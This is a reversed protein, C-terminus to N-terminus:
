IMKLFNNVDNLNLNSSSTNQQQWVIHESPCGGWEASRVPAASFIKSEPWGGYFPLQKNLKQYCKTLWSVVSALLRQKCMQEYYAAVQSDLTGLIWNGIELEM